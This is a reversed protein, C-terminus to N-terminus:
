LSGDDELIVIPEDIEVCRKWLSLHSAFCGIEGPLAARRSHLMYIDPDYNSFFPEYGDDGRCADFFEHSLGLSELQASIHQRRETADKLSIVIIQM